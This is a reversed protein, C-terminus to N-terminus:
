RVSIVRANPFVRQAEDHADDFYEFATDLLRDVMPDKLLSARHRHAEMGPQVPIGVVYGDRKDIVEVMKVLKRDKLSM